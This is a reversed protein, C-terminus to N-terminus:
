ETWVVSIQEKAWQSLEWSSDGARSILGHIELDELTREAARLSLRIADAIESKSKVGERLANFAEARVAPFSDIAVHRLVGWTEENTCGCREMGRLLQAMSVALRPGLESRRLGIVERTYNDREVGSRGRAAINALSNIKVIEGATLPRPTEDNLWDIGIEKHWADFADSITRDTLQSDPNELATRTEHYGDSLPYRYYMCREGMDANAQRAEM